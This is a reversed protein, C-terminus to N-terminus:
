IWTVKLNRYQAAMAGEQKFGIRGGTLLEGCKLGDDAFGLIDMDNIAFSVKDKNKVVTMKYWFGDSDESEKTGSYAQAVADPLPDAGSAVEWTQVPDSKFLKSVHFAKSAAGKRRYFSLEFFSGSGPEEKAADDSQANKCAFILSARGGSSLPMFEWEIRVDSPFSGACLFAAEGEQDKTEIKLAGEPFSIDANGYLEFDRAIDKESLSNDLILKAM